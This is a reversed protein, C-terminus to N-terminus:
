ARPRVTWTGLVKELKGAEIATSRWCSRSPTAMVHKGESIQLTDSLHDDNGPARPEAWLQARARALAAPASVVIADQVASM